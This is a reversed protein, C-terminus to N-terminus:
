LAQQVTPVVIIECFFFWNFSHHPLDISLFIFILLYFKKKNFFTQVDYKKLYLDYKM